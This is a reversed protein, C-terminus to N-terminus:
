KKEEMKDLESLSHTKISYYCRFNTNIKEEDMEGLKLWPYHIKVHKNHQRTESCNVKLTNKYGVEISHIVCECERMSLTSAPPSFNQRLLPFSM